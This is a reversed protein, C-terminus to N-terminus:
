FNIKDPSTLTLITMVHHSHCLLAFAAIYKLAKM